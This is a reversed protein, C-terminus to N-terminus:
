IERQLLWSSMNRSRGISAPIISTRLSQGSIGGDLHRLLGDRKLLIGGHRLKVWRVLNVVIDRPTTSLPGSMETMMARVLQAFYAPDPYLPPAAVPPTTPAVAPAVTPPPQTGQGDEDFVGRKHRLGSSEGRGSPVSVAPVFSTTDVLPDGELGRDGTEVLHEDRAPSSDARAEQRTRVM